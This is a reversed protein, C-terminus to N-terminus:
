RIVYRASLGFDFFDGGGNIFNFYPKVDAGLTLPIEQFKYELGLIADAGFVFVPESYYDRYPIGNHYYFDRHKNYGYYYYSKYSAVHAGFGFFWYLNNTTTQKQFELLGTLAVGRYRSSIIGEFAKQDAFFFKGTIGSSFAGRLGVAAKYPQSYGFTQLFVFPFLLSFCRNIKKMAYIKRFTTLFHPTRLNLNGKCILLM